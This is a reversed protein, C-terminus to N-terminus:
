VSGEGFIEHEVALCLMHYLPLHLEQVQFTEEAPANILIDCLPAMLGGHAGSLGITTLGFAGAVRLAALVNPSNGSTSIAFLVDGPRGMVLVQQAFGWEGGIDNIIATALAGHATLPLAVIGRQLVQSLRADGTADLHIKEELTLLRPLMFGKVLEGAIHECDAASGGNGCLLIKGGARHCAAICAVAKELTIGLSALTPYRELHKNLLVKTGNQRITGDGGSPNEARM